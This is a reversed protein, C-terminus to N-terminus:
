VERPFSIETQLDRIKKLGDQIRENEEEILMAELLNLQEKINAIILSYNVKM